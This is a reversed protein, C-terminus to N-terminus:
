GVTPSNSRVDSRRTRTLSPRVLNQFTKAQEPKLRRGDSGPQVFRTKFEPPSGLPNPKGEAVKLLDILSYLDWVKNQIPTATLMVVYKFPRRQLATRVNEAMAPTKQAGHLNRLKHAEDLICLDFQGPLLSELRSSVSHYTTVVVQTNRQLEADLGAGTAEKATIGFKQDLEGVWQETLVKPCIVLTRNVRKRSILESLILGASITKGLGVDDAILTVPLRRCFTILNQIQHTFPRLGRDRWNTAKIDDESNIIIPDILSWELAAM